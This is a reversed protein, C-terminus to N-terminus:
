DQTLVAQCEECWDAVPLHYYAQALTAVGTITGHTECVCAWTYPKAPVAITGDDNYQEVEDMGDDLGSQKCHYIAVLSGTLRSKRRVVCGPLGNYSYQTALRKPAKPTKSTTTAMPLEEQGTPQYGVPNAGRADRVRM